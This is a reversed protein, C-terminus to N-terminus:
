RSKTASVPHHPLLALRVQRSQPQRGGALKHKDPLEARDCEFQPLHHIGHCPKELQAQLAHQVRIGMSRLRAGPPAHHGENGHPAAVRRRQHDPVRPPQHYVRHHLPLAQVPHQLRLLRVAQIYRADEVFVNQKTTTASAYSVGAPSEADYSTNRMPRVLLTLNGSKGPRGSALLRRSLGSPNAYIRIRSDPAVHTLHATLRVRTGVTIFRHERTLTLTVPALAPGDFVRLDADIDEPFGDHGSVVFLRRGDASLAVGHNHILGAKVSRVFPGSTVFSYVSTGSSAATYLGSPTLAVDYGGMPMAIGNVPAKFFKTVSLDSPDVLVTTTSTLALRSGDTSLSADYFNGNGYGGFDPHGSIHLQPSGGSLDYVRVAPIGGNGIDVVTDALVLRSGGATLLQASFTGLAPYTASVHPSAETVSALLGGDTVFWIRGDAAALQCTGGIVAGSDITEAVDLAVMDIAAVGASGCEAVYIRDGGRVLGSAGPVGPIVKVVAGGFGTVAVSSDGLAPSGSVFVHRGGDDVAISRYGNLPLQTAVTAAGTQGGSAVLGLTVLAALLM